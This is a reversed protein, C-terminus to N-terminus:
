ENLEGEVVPNHAFNMNRLKIKKHDNDLYISSLKLLRHSYNSKHMIYVARIIQLM